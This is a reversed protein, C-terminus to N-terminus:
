NELNCPRAVLGMHTRLYSRMLARWLSSPCTALRILSRSQEACACATATRATLCPAWSYAHALQATRSQIPSSCLYSHVFCSATSVANAVIPGLWRLEYQLHQRRFKERWRCMRSSNYMGECLAHLCDLVAAVCESKLQVFEVVCVELVVCKRRQM